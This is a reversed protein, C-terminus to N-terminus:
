IMDLGPDNLSGDQFVEYYHFIYVEPVVNKNVSNFSFNGASYVKCKAVIQCSM